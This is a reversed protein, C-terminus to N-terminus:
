KKSKIGFFKKFCPINCFELQDAGFLTKALKANEGFFSIKVAEWSKTIAQHYYDCCRLKKAEERHIGM